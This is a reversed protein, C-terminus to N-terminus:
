CRHRSFQPEELDIYVTWAKPNHPHVQVWRSFSNHLSRNSEDLLHWELVPSNSPFLKFIIHLLCSGWSFDIEFNGQRWFSAMSLAEAAIGHQKKTVPKLKVKYDTSRQCALHLGKSSESGILRPFRGRLDLDEKHLSRCRDINGLRM